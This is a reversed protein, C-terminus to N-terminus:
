VSSKKGKFGPVRIEDLEIFRKVISATGMEVGVFPVEIVDRTIYPFELIQASVWRELASADAAHKDIPSKLLSLSFPAWRNQGGAPFAHRKIEPFSKAKRRGDM